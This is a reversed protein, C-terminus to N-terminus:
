ERRNPNASFFANDRSTNRGAIRAFHSYAPEMALWWSGSGRSQWEVAM